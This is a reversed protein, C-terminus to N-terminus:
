QRRFLRDYEILPDRREPLLPKDVVVTSFLDVRLRREWIAQWLVCLCPEREVGTQAMVRVIVDLPPIGRHLAVQYRSELDEVLQLPLNSKRNHWLFLRCLRNCLAVNLDDGVVRVTPIAADRYYAAEFEHRAIAHALDDSSQTRRKGLRREEFAEADRKITWNICYPGISDALFLLLDGSMPFPLPTSTPRDPFKVRISPHLDLRGLREAVALTGKFSQLPLGVAREHGVLPHVRPVMSLMRQEQLEFLAPHHLALVAADREPRSMVQIERGVLRSTLGSAESLNPAETVNAFTGPVYDPGFRQPM